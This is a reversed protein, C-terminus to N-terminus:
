PLTIYNLVLLNVRALAKKILPNANPAGAVISGADKLDEYHNMATLDTMQALMKDQAYSKSTMTMQFDGMSAWTISTSLMVELATQTLASVSHTVGQTTLAADLINKDETTNCYVIQATTTLEIKFARSSITVGDSCYWENGNFASYAKANSLSIALLALYLKIM